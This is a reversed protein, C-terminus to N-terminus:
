LLHGNSTCFFRAERVRQGYGAVINLKVLLCKPDPARKTHSTHGRDHTATPLRRELKGKPRSKFRANGPEAWKQQKKKRGQYHRKDELM